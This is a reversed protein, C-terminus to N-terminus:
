FPSAAMPVPTHFPNACRRPLTFSASTLVALTGMHGGPRHGDLSGRTPFVVTPVVTPTSPNVNILHVPWRTLDECVFLDVPTGGGTAGPVTYSLTGMRVSPSPCAAGRSSAVVLTWLLQTMNSTQHLTKDGFRGCVFNRKRDGGPGDCNGGDRNGGDRDGGARNRDFERATPIAGAGALSMVSVRSKYQFIAVMSAAAAAAAAAAGGQESSVAHRTPTADVM